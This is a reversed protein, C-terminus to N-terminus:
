GCYLGLVRRMYIRDYYPKGGFTKRIDDYPTGIGYLNYSSSFRLVRTDERKVRERKMIYRNM